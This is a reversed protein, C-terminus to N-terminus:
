STWMFMTSSFASCRSFPSTLRPSPVTRIRPSETTYMEGEQVPKKGKPKEKRQGPSTACRYRAQMAHLLSPTRIGGLGSGCPAIALGRKGRLTEGGFRLVRKKDLALM